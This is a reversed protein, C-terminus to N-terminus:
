REVRVSLRGLGSVEYDIDEAAVEVFVPPVISGAIIVDGAALREGLGALVDAIHAAVATLRGTNAELDSTTAFEARNRRVIGTRGAVAGGAGEGGLPALMVHRNYINGALIAEVDDPPPDLDALEFAVGLGGIAAAAATEDAGAGLDAGMYIAIEPEVVPQAWGAISVTAGPEVVVRDTLFGVLPGDIGLKEMAAAAGFGAKWGIPREGGALRGARGALQTRMGRTIREDDLASTM